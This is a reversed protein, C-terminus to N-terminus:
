LVAVVIETIDQLGQLMEKAEVKPAGSPMPVSVVLLLLLALNVSITTEPASLLCLPCIIRFSAAWFDLEVVAACPDNIKSPM